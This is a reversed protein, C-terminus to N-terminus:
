FSLLRLFKRNSLVGMCTSFISQIRWLYKRSTEFNTGNLIRMFCLHLTTATFWCCGTLTVSNCNVRSAKTKVSDRSINNCHMSGISGYDWVRSSVPRKCPFIKWRVKKGTYFLVIFFYFILFLPCNKKHTHPSNSVFCLKNWKQQQVSFVLTKSCASKSEERM